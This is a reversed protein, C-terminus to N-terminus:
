DIMAVLPAARGPMPRAAKDSLIGMPSFPKDMRGQCNKLKGNGTQM